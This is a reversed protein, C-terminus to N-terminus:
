PCGNPISTPVTGEVARFPINPFRYWTWLLEAYTRRLGLPTHLESYFGDQTHAGDHYGCAPFFGSPPTLITELVTHTLAQTRLQALDEVQDLVGGGHEFTDGYCIDADPDWSTQWCDAVADGDSNKGSAHNEDALDQRVYFPTEVWNMLVHLFDGCVTHDAENDDCTADGDARWSDFRAQMDAAAALPNGMNHPDYTPYSTAPYTSGNVLSTASPEFAGDVVLRVDASDSWTRIHAAVDDIIMTAGRGGGSHGIFLVTEASTLSPMTTVGSGDDYSVTHDALADFVADVIDHGRFSVQIQDFASFETGIWSGNDRYGDVHHDRLMMQITGARRGMYRDYSCKHIFIMNFDRFPNDAADPNLIGRGGISPPAWRSSMEGYSKPRGDEGFWTEVVDDIASVSGGGPIFVIWDNRHASDAPAAHVFFVPDSQDVCANDALGAPVPVRWLKDGEPMSLTYAYDGGDEPLPEPQIFLDALTGLVDGPVPPNYAQEELVGESSGDITSCGAALLAALAAPRIVPM